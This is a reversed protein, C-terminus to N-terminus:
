LSTIRVIATATGGLATVKIRFFRLNSSITRGPEGVISSTSDVTQYEADVDNMSGQLTMTISTPATGYVVQWTIQRQTYGVNGTVSPVCFPISTYSSSLTEAQDVTTGTPGASLAPYGVIIALNGPYATKSNPYSNYAPM